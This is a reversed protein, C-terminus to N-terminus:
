QPSLLEHWFKVVHMPHFGQNDIIWQNEAGHEIDGVLKRKELVADQVGKRPLM